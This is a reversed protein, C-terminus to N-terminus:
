LINESSPYDICIATLLEDLTSHSVLTSNYSSPFVEILAGTGVKHVYISM